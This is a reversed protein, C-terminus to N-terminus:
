SLLVWTLIQAPRNGPAIFLLQFPDEMFQPEVLDWDDKGITKVFTGQQGHRGLALDNTGGNPRVGLVAAQQYLSAYFRAGVVAVEAAFRTPHPLHNILVVDLSGLLLEFNYM